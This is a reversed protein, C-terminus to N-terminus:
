SHVEIHSGQPNSKLNEIVKALSTDDFQVTFDSSILGDFIDTRHEAGNPTILTLTNCVMDRKKMNESCNGTYYEVRDIGDLLVKSNHCVIRTIPRKDTDDYNSRRLPIECPYFHYVEITTEYKGQRIKKDQKIMIGDPYIYSCGGAFLDTNKLLKRAQADPKFGQMLEIKNEVESTM